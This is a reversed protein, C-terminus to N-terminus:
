DVSTAAFRYREKTTCCYSVAYPVVNEGEACMSQDNGQVGRSM